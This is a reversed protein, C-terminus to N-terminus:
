KETKTKKSTTPFRLPSVVLADTWVKVQLLKSLFRLRNTVSLVNLTKRGALTSRNQVTPPFQRGALKVGTIRLNYTQTGAFEDCLGSPDTGFVLSQLM